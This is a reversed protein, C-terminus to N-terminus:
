RPALERWALADGLVLEGLAEADAARGHALRQDPQAVLAEDLDHGLEPGEDRADARAATASACNM